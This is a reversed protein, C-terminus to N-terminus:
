EDKEVKRNYVQQFHKPDFGRLVENGVLIMPSVMVPSDMAKRIGSKEVESWLIEEYPIQHRQFYIKARRGGPCGPHTLLKIM